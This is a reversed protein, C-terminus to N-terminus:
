PWKRITGMEHDWICIKPLNSFHGVGRRFRFSSIRRDYKRRIAPIKTMMVRMKRVAEARGTRAKAERVCVCVCM